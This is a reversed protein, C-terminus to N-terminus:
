AGFTRLEYSIIVRLTGDGNIPNSGDDTTLQLGGAIKRTPFYLINAPSIKVNSYVIALSNAVSLILPDVFTVLATKLSLFKATTNYAITKFNYEFIVQNIVSYTGLVGPLLEIPSTGMNLIKASSIDVIATLTSGGGGGVSSFGFDQM